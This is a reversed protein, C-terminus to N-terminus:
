ASWPRRLRIRETGHASQPILCVNRNTEGRELHYKRIVLLGAYEGQSGANPQLSVADFGTIEALMAELKHILAQYGRAQDAPAFPHLKGFEPWTVPIMEATANLKMTCSGLPIMSHALSIDRAALKNLYRLMETESHHANFVPHTLYPTSRAFPARFSASEGGGGQEATRGSIVEVLDRVDEPRTTEDVSVTLTNVDLVRLNIQKQRARDLIAKMQGDAIPVKITDFYLADDLRVGAARLGEALAHARAHVREAIERIGDPGHYVAYMGAIVALLVQATCINSTARDRRIHQERTQLALRVAPRGEADKSVGVLRGPIQRKYADKTALYAAHPGGYGYGMPVGFRQTSGVAIDAGFEGPPALLALALIDAAVCALGGAKHVGEIFDRYDHIVGDTAPYQVLAGCIPRDFTFQRHDGVIVEVGMPEARGQVVAITQPHCDQSVFFAKDHGQIAVCMGMAEAAATAEDLMSANAIEMGTLDMVMTQFNLLAELRGQSVESQYPTYPTYWRPNELVNRLIVPPTICDYYPFIGMYSRFVQNQGALGRLEELIDRESMGDGVEPMAIESKPRIQPPVTKDVLENISSLGLTKLMQQIDAERPGIHREAFSDVSHM